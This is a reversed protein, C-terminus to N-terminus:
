FLQKQRGFLLQKGLQFATRPFSVISPTFHLLRFVFYSTIALVIAETLITVLAAGYYSFKPIMILNAGINFILASLAIFFYPRQKGLAVITYGTLHNFYALFAAPTLIRLVLGANAFEAFKKQTLIKVMLPAEALVVVVMVAALILLVDFTKQYVRKLKGQWDELSSWRSFLPLLAKMLFAAGLILVDYIRSAVGYVGVAGSGKIAGLMVTDIKNDLTFMLLIAGMPLSERMLGLVLKRDFCFTFKVMRLALVGAILTGVGTAALYAFILPLLGVQRQVLVWSILFILVGTAINAVMLKQMELKTQFVLGFSTKLSDFVLFLSAVMIARRLVIQHGAPFPVLYAAATMLIMTLVALFFRLLLISAFIQGQKEPKKAAERVGIIATGWDALASFMVMWTIVYIYNGFGRKGLYGTLLITTLLTFFVTIVKATLQAGTNL